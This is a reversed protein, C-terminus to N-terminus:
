TLLETPVKGGNAALAKMLERHLWTNMAVSDNKDGTYGLEDALGEREQLSADMGLAKMMDVISRRWDLQQGNRQIAGDLIAAIDVPDPRRMSAPEANAGGLTAAVESEISPISSEETSSNAEDAIRTSVGTQFGPTGFAEGFLKDKIASFIKM